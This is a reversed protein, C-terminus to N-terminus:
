DMRRAEEEEEQARRAAEAEDAGGDDEEAAEEAGEAEGEGEEDELGLVRNVAPKSDIGSTAVRSILIIPISSFINFSSTLRKQSL